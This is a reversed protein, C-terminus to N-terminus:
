STKCMWPGHSIESANIEIAEAVPL